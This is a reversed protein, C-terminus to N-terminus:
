KAAVAGPRVVRIGVATEAVGVDAAETVGAERAAAVSGVVM